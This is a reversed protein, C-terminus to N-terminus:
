IINYQYVKVKVKVTMKCSHKPHTIHKQICKIVGCKQTWNCQAQVHVAFNLENVNVNRHLRHTKNHFIDTSLWDMHSFLMLTQFPRRKWVSRPTKQKYVTPLAGNYPSCLTKQWYFNCEFPNYCLGGLENKIGWRFLHSINRRM